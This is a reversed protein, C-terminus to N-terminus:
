PSAVLGGTEPDLRTQNFCVFCSWKQVGYVHDAVRRTTTSGCHVCTLDM